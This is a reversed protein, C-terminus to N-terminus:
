VHYPAVLVWSGLGTCQQADNGSTGSVIALNVSVDAHKATLLGAYWAKCSDKSVSTSGVTFSTSLSCIVWTGYSGINVLVSDGNNVALNTVKGVCFMNANANFTASLLLAGAIACAFWRKPHAAVNGASRRIKM